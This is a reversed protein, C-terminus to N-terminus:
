LQISRVHQPRGPPGARGKARDARRDSGVKPAHCRVRAFDAIQGCNNSMQFHRQAYRAAAQGRRTREAPDLAEHVAVILAEVDNERCGLRRRIGPDM